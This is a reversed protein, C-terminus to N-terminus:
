RSFDDITVLSYDNIYVIKEELDVSALIYCNPVMYELGELYNSRSDNNEEIFDKGINEPVAIITASVDLGLPRKNAVQDELFEYLYQREIENLELMTTWWKDEAMELNESVLIDAPVRSFHVYLDAEVEKIRELMEKYEEM